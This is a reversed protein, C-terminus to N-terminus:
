PTGTLPASKSSWGDITEAAAPRRTAAGGTVESSSARVRSEVPAASKPDDRVVVKPDPNTMQFIERFIGPAVMSFPNVVVQPKSIPGQIAYTIGLLGECKLGSIIQGVIPIGCLASNIGQLPVYTGGLSLRQTVHDIKGRVTAGLAAGRLYSEELVFQGHGASFPIKLHDFQFQERAVKKKGRAGDADAGPAGSFVEAVVPDGLVKFDDVYLVGTKSAAGKGELNVELRVRGGQLNPYFGALRFAQGADTSDAYIVRAEDPPHRLLVKLPKGGDLVGDIKLGTLKDDRDSLKISVDRLSTDNHGLVTGIDAILDLGAAPRLPRIRDADSANISVLASFMDRGDFTAGSATIKWIKAPSLKGRVEVRSVVNLSFDPFYFERVDNTEDISLWGEIAVNEGAVKFNQLEIANAKGKAVDFQAFAARGAPKKWAIDHLGVDANTLDAHVQVKPSGDVLQTVSIDIPMDGQVLHNIDLGLQTRDANDLTATVHLPPQKDPEADVIHQGELKMQVGNVLVDGKAQISTESAEIAISGGTVDLGKIKQKCKLDSLQVKGTATVSGAGLNAVLPFKIDVQADAKGDLADVPVDGAMKPLVGAKVLIEIVPALATQSKVQLGAEPMAKGLGAVTFRGGKFAIKKGSPTEVSADPMAIELADNELRVLARPVDIPRLKDTTKIQLASAELAFSLRSQNQTASQELGELYRGSTLSLTGAGPNGGVIHEAVWARAVPAVASPWLSKLVPLPMPSIQGSLKASSPGGGATMEGQLAVHGGGASLDLATLELLGQHPVLRGSATWQDIPVLGTGADDVALSGATSKLAFRWEPQGGAGPVGSMDGTVTMHSGGWKLTSPSLTFVRRGADYSIQMLGAELALPAQLAPLIIEGRGLELALTASKLIGSTSVEVSADGSVPLNLTQLWGFEPLVQGLASPVLDRLSAKVKIDRTKDSDDTVFTMVWPGRASDVRAMGSIVSRQQLHELDVDLEQVVWQTLKGAYDVSVTADRLGVQRLFSSADEGQRAAASRKALIRALDIRRLGSPLAPRMAREPAPVPVAVAPSGPDSPAALPQSQAVVVGLPLPSQMLGKFEGDTPAVPAPALQPATSNEPAVAAPASADDKDSALSLSVGTEHSYFLALHPAILDIREPVVRFKRLAEASLEIAALPATAVTEGDAGTLRVNIIRFEFGGQKSFTLQVDDIHAELDGLEATIGREIMGAIVRLSMPGQLLRVYIIGVAFASLLLVPVVVYVVPKLIRGHPLSAIRNSFSQAALSLAQM